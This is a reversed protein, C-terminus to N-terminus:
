MEEEFIKNITLATAIGANVVSLEESDSIGTKGETLHSKGLAEYFYCFVDMIEDRSM